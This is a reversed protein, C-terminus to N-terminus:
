RLFDLLTQQILRSGVQLTANFANQVLTFESVTETFDADEIKSLEQRLFDEGETLRAEFADLRNLRTGLITRRDLVKELDTDLNDLSAQIGDTDNERLASELLQISRFINREEVENVTGEAEIGLVSATDQDSTVPSFANSDDEDVFTYKSIGLLSTFRSNVDTGTTDKEPDIYLVHGNYNGTISLTGDTIRASILGGGPGSKGDITDIRNAIDELTDTENVAISYTDMVAGSGDRVEIEFQGGNALAFEDFALNNPQITADSQIRPPPPPAYLGLDRATTGNEYDEIRLFGNNGSTSYINIGTGTDNIEAKVGVSTNNIAKIVDGITEAERLDAIDSSGDNFISIVGQNVTPPIGSVTPDERRIGLSGGEDPDVLSGPLEDLKTDLTLPDTKEVTPLGTNEDITVRSTIDRGFIMRANEVKFQDTGEVASIGIGTGDANIFATAKGKLSPHNNILELLDGLESGPVDDENGTEDDFSHGQTLGRLDLNIVEDGITIRLTELREIFDLDGNDKYAENGNEDVNTIALNDGFSDSSLSSPGHNSDAFLFSNNQVNIRSREPTPSVTPDTLPDQSPYGVSFSRFGDIRRYMGLAGLLNLGFPPQPEFGTPRAGDSMEIADGRHSKLVLQNQQGISATVEPVKANIREVVDELSDVSLDVRIEKGYISFSAYNNPSPSPSNDPNPSRQTNTDPHREPIPPLNPFDPHLKRLEEALSASTDELRLSGSVQNPTHLFTEFGHLNMTVNTGQSLAVNRQFDDGNYIVTDDVRKFAITQTESGGFIYQGNFNANAMDMVQGYLESVQNALSLRAQADLNNGGQVALTRIKQIAETLNGMTTESLELNTRAGGINDLYNRGQHISSRLNLMNPFDVPDDAPQNVRRGTSLQNQLQAIRQMNQQLNFMLNNNLLSQTVRVM